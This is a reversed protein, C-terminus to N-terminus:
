NSTESVQFTVTLSVNTDRKTLSHTLSSALTTIDPLSPLMTQILSPVSCGDGTYNDGNPTATVSFNYIQCPPSGPPAKFIHHSENLLLLHSTSGYSITLSYNLEAVSAAASLQGSSTWSVNIASIGLESISFDLPTPEAHFHIIGHM